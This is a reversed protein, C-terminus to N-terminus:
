SDNSSSYAPVDTFLYPRTPVPCFNATATISRIRLRMTSSPAETPEDWHTRLWSASPVEGVEQAALAAENRNLNPESVIAEM